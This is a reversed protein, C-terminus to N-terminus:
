QKLLEPPTPMYYRMTLGNVSTSGGSVGFGFYKAVKDFSPLLSFDVWEQIKKEPLAFPVTSALLSAFENKNTAAASRVLAEMVTRMTESENEYALWGSGTGGVKAAAAAFGATDRLPKAQSEGSRLFEELISDDTSFAVYGSSAVYSLNGAEPSMTGPLKFSFIKRGLFERTKPAGGQPSIIVFLGKLAGALKDPNPSGLLFLSPASGLEALSKGKPAKEYTIIDDGLNGFINRRVDYDPEDLRAAENANNLIFNWTGLAEPSIDTVMKEITAIAKQGDLRFRTFKVVDAPVFSPPTSEKAELALLKMIGARGSEPASIFFEGMRGEGTDRFSFAASKIGGLGSAGIIKGFDPMPFPSPADPNQAETLSKVVLDIVTRANFWGFFPADRFLAQRCAEFESQEALTPAANGTALRVMVKEVAKVSSGIILLSDYQGIILEDTSKKKEEQGLEEIEQRRPLIQRLTAPIDNTALPVISLEVDRIKETRIPKGAANWKKRLETLNTKLLGSKDKTDLLFLIAPEGDDKARGQWGEQTVALTLQGQLLASYDNFKVGLDRELSKVVEENWKTMFKDRFPKMAADNWFQAQPSKKYVESLKTWDPASLVLLTDPPLLKEAPPVAAFLSGGFLLTLAVAHTITKFNPRLAFYNKLSM